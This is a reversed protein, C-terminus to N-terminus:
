RDGTVDGTGDGTLTEDCAESLPTSLGYRQSVGGPIATWPYIPIPIFVIVTYPILHHTHHQRRRTYTAM